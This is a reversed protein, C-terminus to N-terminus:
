VGTGPALGEMQKQTHRSFPDGAVKGSGKAAEEAKGDEKQM